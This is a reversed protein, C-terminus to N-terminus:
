MSRGYGCSNDGQSQLMPNIDIVKTRVGMGGEGDRSAIIGGKGGELCYFSGRERGGLSLEGEGERWFM